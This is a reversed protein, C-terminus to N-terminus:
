LQFIKLPSYVPGDSKLISQYLIIKDIVFSGFVAASDATLRRITEPDCWGKVRGITLHPTYDKAEINVKIKKGPLDNTLSRYIRELEHTRNEIGIWFVRPRKMSPFASIGAVSAKFPQIRELADSVSGELVELDKEEVEGFFFITIHNTDSKGWKVGKDMVRYKDVLDNIKNNVKKDIDAALFTRM